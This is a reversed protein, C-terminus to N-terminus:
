GNSAVVIRGEDDVVAIANTPCGLAAQRLREIATDMAPELPVAVGLDEDIRFADPLLRVCDGSGICLDADISVDSAV